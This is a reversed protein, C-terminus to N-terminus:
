KLQVDIPPGSKQWEVRTAEMEELEEDTLEQMLPTLAKQFHGPYGKDSKEIDPNMAKVRNHIEEMRMKGIVRRLPIKRELKFVARDKFPKNNKFWTYVAQLFTFQTRPERQSYTGTGEKGVFAQRGRGEIHHDSRVEGCETTSNKTSGGWGRFCRQEEQRGEREM